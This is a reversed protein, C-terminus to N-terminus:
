GDAPTRRAQSKPPRFRSRSSTSVCARTDSRQKCAHQSAGARHLHPLLQQSPGSMSHEREQQGGTANLAYIQHSFHQEKTGEQDQLSHLLRHHGRHLYADACDWTDTIIDLFQFYCVKRDHHTCAGTRHLLGLAMALPMRATAALGRDICLCADKGTWSRAMLTSAAELITPAPQAVMARAPTPAPRPLNPPM